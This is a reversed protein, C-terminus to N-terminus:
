AGHRAARVVAVTAEIATPTALAVLVAVGLVALAEGRRDATAAAAAVVLMAGGALVAAAAAQVGLRHHALEVTRASATARLALEGAISGGVGAIVLRVGLGGHARALAGAAGGVAGTPFAALLWALGFPSATYDHELLGLIAYYVLVAVCLAVVGAAAGARWRPTLGGALVAAAAWPTALTALWYADGPLWYLGRTGFALVVGILGASLGLRQVTRRPEPVEDAYRAVRARRPASRSGLGARRWSRGCGRRLSLTSPGTAWRTSGSGSGACMPRACPRPTSGSSWGPSRRGIASCMTSTATSAGRSRPSTAPLRTPRVAPSSRGAAEQTTSRTASRDTSTQGQASRSSRATSGVCARRCSPLPRLCSRRAWLAAAAPGSRLGPRRRALADRVAAALWVAGVGALVAVVAAAPHQFRAIGAYNAVKSTAAVLAVWGLAGVLLVVVVLECEGSALDGRASRDGRAGGGAMRVAERVGMRRMRVAALAAAALAVLLLPVPVLEVARKVPDTLTAHSVDGQAKQSSQLPNGVTVVDPIFWLPLLAVFLGLILVRLRPARWLLWVGYLGLFPWVEPRLLSAAFALAFAQGQRRLLHCDVAWLILGCLLGEERGMAVINMWSPVLAVALVAAAVWGAAPGALRCAVRAAMVFALLGGARAVLTWLAPAAGGALSLVAIILPPLPKWSPGSTTDLDVSAVERGWVVWAWPDPLLAFPELLFSLGAVALCAALAVLTPRRALATRM